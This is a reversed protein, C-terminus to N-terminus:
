LSQIFLQVDMVYKFVTPESSPQIFDIMESLMSYSMENYNTFLQREVCVSGVAVLVITNSCMNCLKAVSEAKINAM